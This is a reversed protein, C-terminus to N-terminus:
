QRSDIRLDFSFVCGQIQPQSRYRVGFDAGIDPDLSSKYSKILFPNRNDTVSFYDTNRGGFLARPKNSLVM